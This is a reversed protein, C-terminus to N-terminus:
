SSNEFILELFENGPFAPFKEHFPDYHYETFLLLYVYLEVANFRM